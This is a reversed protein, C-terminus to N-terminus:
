QGSRDAWGPGRRGGGGGGSPGAGGGGKRPGRSRPGAGLRTAQGAWGAFMREHRGLAGGGRAPGRPGATTRGARVIARVACPRNLAWRRRSLHARAGPLWTVWQADERFRRHSSGTSCGSVAGGFGTSGTSRAWNRAWAVEGRRSRVRQRVMVSTPAAARRSHRWQRRRAPRRLGRACRRVTGRRVVSTLEGGEEIWWEGGRRKGHRCPVRGGHGPSPQALGAARVEGGRTALAGLWGGGKREEGRALRRRRAGCCGHGGEGALRAGQAGRGLRRASPVGLGTGMGRAVPASSARGFQAWALPGGRV